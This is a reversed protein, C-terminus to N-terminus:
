YRYFESLGFEDDLRFLVWRRIQIFQQPTLKVTKGDMLPGEDIYETNEDLFDERTCYHNGDKPNPMYEMAYRVSESVIHSEAISGEVYRKNSPINKYGKM